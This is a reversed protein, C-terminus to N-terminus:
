RLIKLLFSKNILITLNVLYDPYDEDLNFKRIELYHYKEQLIMFINM